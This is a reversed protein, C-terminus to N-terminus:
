AIVAATGDSSLKRVRPIWDRRDGSATHLYELVYVSDGSVAVGTPSWPSTARLVPTIEGKATIKLVACCGNAAIYITGDPAVDLGRLFPGLNTEINPFRTCDAVV